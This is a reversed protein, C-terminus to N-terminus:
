PIDLWADVVAKRVQDLTAKSLFGNAYFDELVAVCAPGLGDFSRLSDPSGVTRNEPQGVLDSPEKRPTEVRLRDDVEQEDAYHTHPDAVPVGFCLCKEDDCGTSGAGSGGPVSQELDLVDIVAPGHEGLHGYRRECRDGMVCGHSYIAGCPSPEPRRAELDPM